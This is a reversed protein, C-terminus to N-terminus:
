PCAPQFVVPVVRPGPALIAKEVTSLWLSGSHLGMEPEFQKGFDFSSMSIVWVAQITSFQGFYRLVAMFPFNLNIETLAVGM